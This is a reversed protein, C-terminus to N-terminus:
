GSKTYAQLEAELRLVKADSEAHKRTCEALDAEARTVRETLQKIENELRDFQRLRRQLKLTALTM